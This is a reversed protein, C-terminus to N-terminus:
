RGEVRLPRVQAGTRDPNSRQYRMHCTWFGAAGRVDLSAQAPQYDGYVGHLYGWHKLLGIAMPDPLRDVLREFTQPQSLIRVLERAPEGAHSLDNSSM